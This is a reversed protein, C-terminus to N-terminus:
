GKNQKRIVPIDISDENIEETLIEIDNLVQKQLILREEWAKIKGHTDIFSPKSLEMRLETDNTYYLLIYTEIKEIDQKPFGTFLNGQKGKDILKICGEGKPNKNSAQQNPNGTAANGSSPIIRIKKDHSIIGEIGNEQYIQWGLNQTLLRLKCNTDNWQIYGAQGKTDFATSNSKSLVGLKCAEILVNANIGIERLRLEVGMADTIVKNKDDTGIKRNIM